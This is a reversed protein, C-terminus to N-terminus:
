GEASHQQWLAWPYCATTSQATSSGFFRNSREIKSAILSRLVNVRLEKGEHGLLCHPRRQRSLAPKERTHARIRFVAVKGDRWHRRLRFAALLLVRGVRGLHTHVRVPETGRVAHVMLAAATLRMLRLPDPMWRQLPRRTKRNRADSEKKSVAVVSESHMLAWLLAPVLM